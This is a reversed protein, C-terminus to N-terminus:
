GITPPHNAPILDLRMRGRELSVRVRHGPRIKGRLIGDALFSEVERTLLHRLPRAGLAADKGALRVLRNIVPGSLEYQIGRDSHLKASSAAALRVLVQRMEPESLPHLVLPAEIRNWLEVPFAARASALVAETPPRSTEDLLNAGLNSTMIIVSHRFDVTRGRGDTLRGEDFVQLLLQHVDRHAKEMEDLLVVRHPQKLMPDTLAGGCEHGVYGPPAGVVRAVAHSESYESMDLRLLTDARHFLAGALAKAIETKGVGSPGLLLATAIPRGTRFGARNRRILDAVTHLAHDHGVVSRALETELELADQDGAGSVRAPPLGTRECIVEVCVERTLATAATRRVRACALDLIDIARGPMALGTVFQESMRSLDSLHLNPALELDHRRLVGPAALEIARIHDSSSTDAMDIIDLTELVGPMWAELQTKTEHSVITLVRPSAHAWAHALAPLFPPAAESPIRDMDDFVVVGQQEAIKSLDARLQEEDGYETADLIFVPSPIAAALHRAVLSRGSGHAGVLVPARHAARMLADGLNGLEQERGYLPPLDDVDVPLLVDHASTNETSRSSLRQQSRRRPVAREDHESDARESAEDRDRRARRRESPDRSLRDARTHPPHDRLPRGSSRRGRDGNESPSGPSRRAHEVLAKRLSAVRVGSFELAQYARTDASRAIALLADVPSQQNFGRQLLRQHWDVPERDFRADHTVEVEEVGARLRAPDYGMAELLEVTDVDELVAVM